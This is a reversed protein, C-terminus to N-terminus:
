HLSGSLLRAGHCLLVRLDLPWRASSLPGAKAWDAQAQEGPPTEFRVTLHSASRVRLTALFRCVIRESGEFGM